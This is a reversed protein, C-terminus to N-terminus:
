FMETSVVLLDMDLPGCHHALLSCKVHSCSKIVICCHGQNSALLALAAFAYGVYKWM